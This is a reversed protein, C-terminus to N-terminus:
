YLKRPLGLVKWEDCFRLVTGRSQGSNPTVLLLCFSQKRTTTSWLGTKQLLVILMECIICSVHSLNLHWNDQGFGKGTMEARGVGREVWHRSKRKKWRERGREIEIGVNVHVCRNVNWALSIMQSIGEKKHQGRKETLRFTQHFSAFSVSSALLRSFPFISHRAPRPPLLCCWFRTETCACHTNLASWKWRFHERTRKATLPM